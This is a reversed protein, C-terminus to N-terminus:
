QAIEILYNQVNPSISRESYNATLHPALYVTQWASPPETAAQNADLFSTRVRVTQSVESCSVFRAAVEVTNTPTRQAALRQISLLKTADWSAFQVSNLPIPTSREGYELGVLAPMGARDGGRWPMKCQSVLPAKTACATAALMTLSLVCGRVLVSM